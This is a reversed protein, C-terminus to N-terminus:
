ESGGKGKKKERELGCGERERETERVIGSVSEREKGGAGQYGANKWETGDKNLQEENQGGDPLVLEVVQKAEEEEHEDDEDDGAGLNGYHHRVELETSLYANQLPCHTLAHVTATYPREIERLVVM